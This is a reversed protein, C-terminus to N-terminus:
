FRCLYENVDICYFAISSSMLTNFHIGPYFNATRQKQRLVAVSPRRLTNLDLSFTMQYLFLLVDYNLMYLLRPSVRERARKAESAHLKCTRVKLLLSM